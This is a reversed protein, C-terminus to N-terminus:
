EFVEIVKFKMTHDPTCSVSFGGGALSSATMKTSLGLDFTVRMFKWCHTNTESSNNLMFPSGNKGQLANVTQTLSNQMFNQKSNM